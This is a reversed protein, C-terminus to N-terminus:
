PAKHTEPRQFWYQSPSPLRAKRYLWSIPRRIMTSMCPRLFILRSIIRRRQQGARICSRRGFTGCRGKPKSSRVRTRNTSTMTRPWSAFVELARPIAKQDLASMDIMWIMSTSRRLTSPADHHFPSLLNPSIPVLKSEPSPQAM